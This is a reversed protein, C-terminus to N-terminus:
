GVTLHYTVGETFGQRTGAFQLTHQGPSLPTLLLWYGDSVAKQQRGTICNDFGPNLSLDGAFSYMNSTGRYSAVVPIDNGDLSAQLDTAADILPVAGPIKDTGYTLFDKLSQGPAPQFSPDLLCPYDNELAIVPFFIKKGAPIACSRTVLGGSSGALFWTGGNQGIACDAGTPDLIPNQAAPVALAWKWWLMGLQGFRQQQPPVVITAPAAAATAMVGTSMLALIM